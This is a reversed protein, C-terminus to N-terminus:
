EGGQQVYNDVFQEANEELVDDLEALLEEDVQDELVEDISDLTDAASDSVETNSVGAHTEEAEEPRRSKQKQVREQTM